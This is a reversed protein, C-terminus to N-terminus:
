QIKKVHRTAIEAWLDNAGIPKGTALKFSIADDVRTIPRFIHYGMRIDDSGIVSLGVSNQGNLNDVTLASTNFRKLNVIFSSHYDLNTSTQEEWFHVTKDATSEETVKFVVFNSASLPFKYDSGQGPDMIIKLYHGGSEATIILKEVPYIETGTTQDVIKIPIKEAM